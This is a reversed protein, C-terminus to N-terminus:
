IVARNADLRRTITGGVFTMILETTFASEELSLGKTLNEAAGMLMDFTEKDLGNVELLGQKRGIRLEM